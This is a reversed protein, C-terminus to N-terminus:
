VPILALPPSIWFFTAAVTVRAAAFKLVASADGGDGNRALFGIVSDVGIRRYGTM